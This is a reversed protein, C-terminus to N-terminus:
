KLNLNHIVFEFVFLWGDFTVDIDDDFGDIYGGCFLIDRAM